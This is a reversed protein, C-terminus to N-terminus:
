KNYIVCLMVCKIQNPKTKHCKLGQLNNLTLDQLYMYINSIYSKYVCKTIEIKFSGLSM